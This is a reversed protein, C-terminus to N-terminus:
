WSNFTKPYGRTQIKPEPKIPNENRLLTRTRTQRTESEFNPNEPKQTGSGASTCVSTIPWFHLVYLEFFDILNTGFHIWTFFHSLIVIKCQVLMACHPFQLFESEDKVGFIAQFSGGTMYVTKVFYNEISLLTKSKKM